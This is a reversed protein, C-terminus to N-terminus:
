FFHIVQWLLAQQEQFSAYSGSCPDKHFALCWRLYYFSHGLSKGFKISSKVGNELFFCSMLSDMLHQSAFGNVHFFEIPDLFAEDLCIMLLMDFM